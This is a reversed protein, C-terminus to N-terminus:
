LGVNSRDMSRVFHLRHNPQPRHVQPSRPAAPHQPTGAPSPTAPRPDSETPLITISGCANTTADGDTIDSGNQSDYTIDLEAPGTLTWDTPIYLDSQQQDAFGAIHLTQDGSFTNASTKLLVGDRYLRLNGEIGYDLM